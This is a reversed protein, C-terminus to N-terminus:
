KAYLSVFLEPFNTNTSQIALVALEYNFNCLNILFLEVMSFVELSISICGSIEIFNFKEFLIKM